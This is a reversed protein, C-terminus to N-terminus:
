QSASVQGGEWWWGRRVEEQESEVREGEEGGEEWRRGLM